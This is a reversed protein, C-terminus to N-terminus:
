MNLLHLKTKIVETWEFVPNLLECIGAPLYLPVNILRKLIPKM